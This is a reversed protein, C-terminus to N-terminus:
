AGLKQGGRGAILFPSLLDVYQGTGGQNGPLAARARRRLAPPMEWLPPPEQPPLEPTPFLNKKTLGWKHMTRETAQRQYQGGTAPMMPRGDLPMWADLEKGVWSDGWTTGHGGM